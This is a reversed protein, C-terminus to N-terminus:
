TAAMVLSHLAMATQVFAVQTKLGDVISGIAVPM